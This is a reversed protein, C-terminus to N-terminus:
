PVEITVKAASTLGGPSQIIYNFHDVVNGEFPVYHFCPGRTCQTYEVSGYSATTWTVTSGDPYSDNGFVLMYISGQSWDTGSESYYNDLAIPASSTSGGGPGGGIASGPGAM